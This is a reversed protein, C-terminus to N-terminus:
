VAALFYIAAMAKGSIFGTVPEGNLAISPTGFLKIQLWAAM